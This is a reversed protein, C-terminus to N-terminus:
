WDFSGIIGDVKRKLEDRVYPSSKIVEISAGRMTDELQKRARELDPDNTVNLGKLLECLEMPNDVFTEHFRTKKSEDNAQSLKASMGTLLEYLRDWSERTAEALRRKNERELDDQMEQLDETTADLYFHGSLPVPEIPNRWRYKEAVVDVNPYDDENWLDGLYNRSIQVLTPYRDLVEQVMRDFQTQHATFRAKYEPMLSSPLIRWGQDDWPLTMKTHELRCMSAFDSVDKVLKTGAMINKRVQAAKPDAGAMTTLDDSRRKDMKAATWTSISLAVKVARRAVGNAQQTVDNM